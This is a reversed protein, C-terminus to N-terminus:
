KSPRPSAAFPASIYASWRHSVGHCSQVVNSDFRGQGIFENTAVQLM